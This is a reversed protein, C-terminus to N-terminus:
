LGVEGLFLHIGQLVAKTPAPQRPSEPVKFIYENGCSGATYRYKGPEWDVFAIETGIQDERLELGHVEDDWREGTCGPIAYSRETM